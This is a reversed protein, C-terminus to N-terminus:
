LEIRENEVLPFGNQFPTCFNHKYVLIEYVLTYFLNVELTKTKSYFFLNQFLTGTVCCQLIIIFWKSAGEHHQPKFLKYDDWM